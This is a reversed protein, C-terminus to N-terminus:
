RRASGPTRPPAGWGLMAQEDNSLIGDAAATLVAPDAYLRFLVKAPDLEPWVDKVYAKVAASRAVADQVRDDPTEGAREMAVLVAHALRPALMARAAHFRAGRERLEAM